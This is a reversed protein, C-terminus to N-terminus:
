RNRSVFLYTTMPGKGKINLTGWKEFEYKDRLRQYTAETVQIKGVLGQSEMRSAVNVADGWLDYSFKSIGIVGAVVTGTNIGIRLQISNGSHQVFRKMERRMAIAMEMVAEAHDPRPVPVGGAVMYADGITKIKELGYQEALQDFNSFVQNLLQVLEMPTLRASLPTFDVIDAFLITVEDFREAIVGRNQKLREAITRPLINLLLQESKEQERKLAEQVRQREQIEQQLQRNKEILLESQQQLRKQLNALLPSGGKSRFIRHAQQELLEKQMGQISLQNQVRVVVEQVSFPKAIYDIGGSEFAKVKDSVQQQASIFIVPINRTQTDLKLQQCIDYGSDRGLKIDLLILDPTFERIVDAIVSADSLTYVEFGEYTLADSLLSVIELADDVILIRNRFCTSALVNTLDNARFPNSLKCSAGQTSQNLIGM